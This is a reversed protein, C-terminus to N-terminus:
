TLTAHGHEPERGHPDAGKELLADVVDANGGQAALHLVTAGSASVAKADAGAKLLSRVVAARERRSALHLPTYGADRTTASINARAKLLLEAMASVGRDAAWRRAHRGEGKAMNVDAGQQVAKRVAALDGRMAADAVIPARSSAKPLPLSKARTDQATARAASLVLAACFLHTVKM